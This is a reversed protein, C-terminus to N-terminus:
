SSRPPTANAMRRRDLEGRACHVIDKDMDVQKCVWQLYDAPIADWKSGAHKGFPIKPFAKPESSWKILTDISEQKLAEQLIGYTVVTDHHASHAMQAHFRGLNPLGLFYRLTENKHNPADPWLRLAIKYTCVWQVDEFGDKLIGQEYEANHAVLIKTDMSDVLIRLGGKASDWDRAFAVDEDTIHHIASTEVPIVIPPKILVTYDCDPGYLAVELAHAIKPDKDTTEFDIAVPGRM